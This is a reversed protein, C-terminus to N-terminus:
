RIAARWRLANLVYVGFFYEIRRTRVIRDNEFYHFNM